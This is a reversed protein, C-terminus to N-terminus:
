SIAWRDFNDTCCFPLISKFETALEIVVLTRGSICCGSIIRGFISNQQIEPYGSIYSYAVSFDFVKLIGKLIMSIRCKM